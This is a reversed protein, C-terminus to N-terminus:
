DQYTPYDDINLTTGDFSPFEEVSNFDYNSVSSIAMQVDGDIAYYIQKSVQCHRIEGEVFAIEASTSYLYTVINGNSTSSSLCYSLSFSSGSSSADIITPNIDAIYYWDGDAEQDLVTVEKMTKGSALAAQLTSPIGLFYASFGIDLYSDIKNLDVKTVTKGDDKGDNPDYSSHNENYDYISYFNTDVLQDQVLLYENEKNAEEVTLHRNRQDETFDNEDLCYAPYYHRTEVINEKYRNAVFIDKSTFITDSIAYQITSDTDAYTSSSNPNLSDIKDIFRKVKQAPNLSSYVTWHAYLESPVISAPSFQYEEGGEKSAFWGDFCFNKVTPDINPRALKGNVTEVTEYIEDDANTLNRYFTVTKEGNINNSSSSVEGCSVLLLPFSLFLYKKNM